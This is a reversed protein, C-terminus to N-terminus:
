ISRSNKINIKYSNKGPTKRLHKKFYNSPLKKFPLLGEKKTKTTCSYNNNQPMQTTQRGLSM